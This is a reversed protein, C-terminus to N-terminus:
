EADDDGRGGFIERYTLAGRERLLLLHSPRIRDFRLAARDLALLWDDEDGKYLDDDNEMRDPWVAYRYEWEASDYVTAPVGRLLRTANVDAGADLLLEIMKSDMCMAAFVLPGATQYAHGNPDAGWLLLQKIVDYRHAVSEDGSCEREEMFLFMVAALVSEGSADLANVDFVKSVIFQLADLDGWSAKSIFRKFPATLKLTHRKVKLM